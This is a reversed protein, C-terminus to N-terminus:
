DSMVGSHIKIIELMLEVMEVMDQLRISERITHMNVMGTGLVGTTVGKSFFINADAGGGSTKTQISRGLNKAAKQALTVVPHDEPINTLPFDSDIQISVTPLGDSASKSRYDEVVREFAKKITDTVNNLKQEDHSRVEGKLTVLNPVINTAKGGEIVGINCTTEADIRGIKLESLAKAALWIANIGEEPAVGAHADKGHVKIEIRNAAPARTVIGKTDTTDLAFGYKANIHELDLHKAGALGIEECVTLVLEIPAYPLNNEQLLSITELLIAIASKDDAGLITDGQSTFVGEKLIAVVGRGPEVTDMHANLMLPPAAINGKFKAILNGSNGGVEDAASDVVTEAGMEELKKKLEKCILGEEKSVSDMSVLWQFVKALRDQNVM